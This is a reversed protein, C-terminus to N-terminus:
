GNCAVPRAAAVAPMAHHVACVQPDHLYYSGWDEPHSVRESQASAITMLPIGSRRLMVRLRATATFFAWEYGQERCHTIVARVLAVAAGPRSAALASVEVIQQRAVAHNGTRSLLTEITEDLYIESFFPAQRLGAACTLSGQEDYAALMLPPLDKVMAGYERQYVSRVIMEVQPRLPHGLPTILLNM